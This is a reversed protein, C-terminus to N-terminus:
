NCSDFLLTEAPLDAASTILEDLWDHSAEAVERSEKLPKDSNADVLILDCLAKSTVPEATRKAARSANMMLAFAEEFLVSKTAM